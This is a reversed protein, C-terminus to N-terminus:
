AHTGAATEDEILRIVDALDNRRRFARRQRQAGTGERLLREVGGAVQSWDGLASLTPRAVDLVHGVLETAPVLRGAVPDLLQGDLGERAARWVAAELVEPRPDPPPRDAAAADLAAGALGRFLGALTVAEDVRLCVDAIRFELTPFRASPRVDWYLKTADSIAGAEVLVTVAGQYEDWGAFRAPTGTTPWRRFVETRFSAYGTDVGEWFPSNASLALLVALWPRVRNMVEIRDDPDPIGVHVHCGFIMTERAVQGYEAALELYREKPTVRHEEWRAFPHTGAAGLRCAQAEAAAAVVARRGALEAAVEELHRCVPTAIEIQADFLEPQVTDGLVPRTHGLVAASAGRLDGTAADLLQYEEEVGLTLGEM